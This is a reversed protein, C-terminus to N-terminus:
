SKFRNDRHKIVGTFAAKNARPTGRTLDSLSGEKKKM